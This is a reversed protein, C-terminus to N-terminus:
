EEDSPFQQPFADRLDEFQLVIRCSWAADPLAWMAPTIHGQIEEVKEYLANLAGVHTAKNRRTVLGDAADIFQEPPVGFKAAVAKIGENAPGLKEFRRCKSEYPKDGAAHLLAQRAVNRVAPLHAKALQVELAKLKKEHEEHWQKHEQLQLQQEQILKALSAGSVNVVSDQGSLLRSQWNPILEGSHHFCVSDLEVDEFPLSEM